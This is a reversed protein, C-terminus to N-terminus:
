FNPFPMSKIFLADKFIFLYIGLLISTPLLIQITLNVQFEINISKLLNLSFHMGLVICEMSIMQWQLM